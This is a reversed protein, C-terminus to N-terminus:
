NIVSNQTIVLEVYNPQYNLSFHLTSSSNVFVNQFTGKSGGDANLFRYRTGALYTGAQPTIYLSGNLAASGGIFIQDKHGAADIKITLQGLKLQSYSNQLKLIAISPGTFLAGGNQLYGITGKAYLSANAAISISAQHFNEILTLTGQLVQIQSDCGEKSTLSLSGGGNKTITGHGDVYAQTNRSVTNYTISTYTMGYVDDGAIEGPQAGHGTALGAIVNNGAFTCDTITLHGGQAVFIAGGYGAGGGGGGLNSGGAGGGQDRGSGGDANQGGGGGGGGFGGDGGVGGAFLITGGGGGGGGGGFGGPGGDAGNANISGGGGGGGGFKGGFGGIGGSGGGAGGGGAGIAGGDGGLGAINIDSGGGGGGGGVLPDGFGGNESSSNSLGSTGGTGNGGLGNGGTGGDISANAGDGLITSGNYDGSFGGGGGGAAFGAGGLAALGGGGGGGSGNAFNFNGAGGNGQLMGGGGGGGAGNTYISTLSGGNGGQATNNQFNINSLTVIAPANVFVGGGAGLGGGGSGAHSSGGNGGQSKGNSITLNNISITGNNVFFVQYANQGDISVNGNGNITISNNIIPLNSNLTITGSLTNNFVITDGKQAFSLANRLSGTGENDTLTNVTFTTASLSIQLSICLCSLASILRKKTPKFYSAMKKM